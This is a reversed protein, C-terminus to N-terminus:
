YRQLVHSCRVMNLARMRSQRIDDVIGEATKVDPLTPCDKALDYYPVLHPLLHYTGLQYRGRLIEAYFSDCLRLLSLVMADIPAEKWENFRKVLANMSEARNNTRSSIDKKRM